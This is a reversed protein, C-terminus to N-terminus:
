GGRENGVHEEEARTFARTGKWRAAVADIYVVTRVLKVSFDAALWATAVATTLRVQRPKLGQKENSPM